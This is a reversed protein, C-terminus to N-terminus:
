EALYVVEWHPHSFASEAKPPRAFAIEAVQVVERIRSVELCVEEDVDPYYQEYGM